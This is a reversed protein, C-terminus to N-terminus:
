CVQGGRIPQLRDACGAYHEYDQVLSYDLDKGGPNTDKTTM